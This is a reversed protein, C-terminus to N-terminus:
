IDRIIKGPVGGIIVSCPFKGKIVSGAAVVTRKSLVTGSLIRSGCGIWVDSEIEIGGLTLGSYKIPTDTSDYNHEFSIISTSHAISVDNGISVGGVADIYTYDHISVNNGVKLNSINKIVVFRGICINRGVSPCISKLIIYRLLIGAKGPLLSFSDLLFVLIFSPLVSLIKSLCNIIYFFKKFFTRGNM